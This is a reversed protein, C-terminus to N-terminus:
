IPNCYNQIYTYDLRMQLLYEYFVHSHSKYLIRNSIHFYIYNTVITKRLYITRLSIPKRPSINQYEAILCNPEFWKCIFMIPSFSEAHKQQQYKTIRVWQKTNDNYKYKVLNSKFAISKQLHQLLLMLSGGRPNM